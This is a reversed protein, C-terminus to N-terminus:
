KPIKFVGYIWMTNYIIKQPIILIVNREVLLINVKLFGRELKRYKFDKPENINKLRKMVLIVIAPILM